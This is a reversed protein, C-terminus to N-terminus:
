HSAEIEETISLRKEIENVIAQQEMVPPLPIAVTM